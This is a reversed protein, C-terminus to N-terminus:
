KPKKLIVYFSKNRCRIKHCRGVGHPGEFEAPDRKQTPAGKAQPDLQQGIRMRAVTAGFAVLKIDYLQVVRTSQTDDDYEAPFKDVIVVDSSTNQFVTGNAYDAIGEGPQLGELVEDPDDDYERDDDGEHPIGIPDCAPSSCGALTHVRTDMGSGVGACMGTSTIRKEGYYHYVGNWLGYNYTPCLQEHATVRKSTQKRASDSAM